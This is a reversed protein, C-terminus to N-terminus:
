FVPCSLCQRTLGFNERVLHILNVSPDVSGVDNATEVRNDENRGQITPHDARTASVACADREGIGIAEGVRAHM